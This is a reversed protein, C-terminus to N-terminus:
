SREETLRFIGWVHCNAHHEKPYRSRLLSQVEVARERNPLLGHRSLEANAFVDPFGGCNTLASITDQVDVLDYGLFQFHPPAVPHDPPNRFVCLVNKKEFASVQAMLFDFDLFYVGMFNEQVIHPWYSDEIHRVLTPCLIGDLSVVEELQPLKAFELYKTWGESDGPGFTETAIFWPTVVDTYGAM